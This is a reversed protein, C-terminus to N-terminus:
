SLFYKLNDVNFVTMDSLIHAIAGELTAWIGEKMKRREKYVIYICEKGKCLKFEAMVRYHNGNCQCRFVCEKKMVRNTKITTTPIIGLAAAFTSSKESIHLNNQIKKCKKQM